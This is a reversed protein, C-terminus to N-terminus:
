YTSSTSRKALDSQNACSYRALRDSAACRIGRRALGRGFRGIGVVTISLCRGFVAPGQTAQSNHPLPRQRRGHRAGVGNCLADPTTRRSAPNPSRAGDKALCNGIQQVPAGVTPTAHALAELTPLLTSRRRFIAHALATSGAAPVIHLGNRSAQRSTGLRVWV